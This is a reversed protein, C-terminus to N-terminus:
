IIKLPDFRSYKILSTKINEIYYEKLKYVEEVNKKSLEDLNNGISWENSGSTKNLFDNVINEFEKILEFTEQDMIVKENINNLENFAAITDYLM